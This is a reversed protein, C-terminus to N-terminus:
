SSGHFTKARILIIFCHNFNNCMYMCVDVPVGSQVFPCSCWAFMCVSQLIYNYYLCLCIGKHEFMKIYQDSMELEHRDVAQICTRYGLHEFRLHQILCEAACLSAKCLLSFHHTNLVSSDDYHLGVSSSDERGSLADWCLTTHAWRGQCEDKITQFGASNITLSRTYAHHQQSSTGCGILSHLLSQWSWQQLHPLEQSFSLM